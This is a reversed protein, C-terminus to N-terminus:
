VGQQQPPHGVLAERLCPREPRTIIEGVPDVAKGLVDGRPGDWLWEPPVCGQDFAVDGLLHGLQLLLGALVDQLVAGALQVARQHLVVENVLEVEPQVGDGDSAALTEEVPNVGGVQLQDVGCGEAGADDHEGVGGFLPIMWIVTSM